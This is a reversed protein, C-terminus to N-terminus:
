LSPCIGLDRKTPRNGCVKLFETYQQCQKLTEEDLEGAIPVSTKGDSNMSEKIKLKSGLMLGESMMSLGISCFGENASLKPIIHCAGSCQYSEDGKSNQLWHKPVLAKTFIADPFNTFAKDGLEDPDGFGHGVFPNNGRHCQTCENNFNQDSFPTANDLSTLLYNSDDRAVPIYSEWFCVEGKQSWCIAFAIQKGERPDGVLQVCGGSEPTAHTYLNGFSMGAAFHIGNKDVPKISQWYQKDNLPKPVNVGAQSCEALYEAASKRETTNKPLSDNLSEDTNSTLTENTNSIPTEKKCASVLCVVFAMGSFSCAKLKTRM